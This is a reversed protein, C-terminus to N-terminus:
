SIFMVCLYLVYIGNNQINLMNGILDTKDNKNLKDFYNKNIHNKKIYKKIMYINTKYKMIIDFHKSRQMIAYLLYNYFELEKMENINVNGNIEIFYKILEILKLKLYKDKIDILIKNFDNKIVFEKIDEYIFGKKLWFKRIDNSLDKYFINSICEILDNIEIIKENNIDDIKVEMKSSTQSLEKINESENLNVFKIILDSLKLKVNDDNINAEELLSAVDSDNVHDKINQYDYEDETWARKLEKSIDENLETKIYELVNSITLKSM